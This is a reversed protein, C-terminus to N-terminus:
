ILQSEYNAIVSLITERADIAKDVKNQNIAEKLDQLANEMKVRELSGLRLALDPLFINAYLSLREAALMAQNKDAQFTSEIEKLNNEKLTTGSSVLDLIADAIGM